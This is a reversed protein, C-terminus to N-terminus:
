NGRRGGPRRRRTSFQEIMEEIKKKAIEDFEMQSVKKGKTPIKMKEKEKSNLVIKTCLLTTTGEQVELILGPLGWFEKPGQSIPIEPTYWVEVEILKPQESTSEKELPLGEELRKRQQRAKRRISRWNAIENVKKLTTAKYCTYNGIKKTEDILNWKYNLLTDIILFNKGYFERQDYFKKENLDKYYLKSTYSMMSPNWRGNSSKTELQQEEKYGSVNKNFNLVFSKESASKMRERIVKKRDEPINRDNLDIDLTTKSFYYAEGQFEQATIFATIIICCFTTLTKIM